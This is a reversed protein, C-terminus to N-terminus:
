KHQLNKQLQQKSIKENDADDLKLLDTLGCGLLFNAQTTYGLVDLGADSAAEAVATFDVHATIDQIGTLTLPNSHSHHRYHCMLTGGTRQTHYYEHRPFGYDILLIVGKGLGQSIMEIWGNIAPNLESSYGAPLELKAIQEAIQGDAPRSAWM